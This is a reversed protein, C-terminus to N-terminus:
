GVPVAPITLNLINVGFVNQILMAIAWASFVIILGILAATIQNRANETGAKDGGGIMWRIGGIVLMFFFIVGAVVLAMTILWQVISSVTIGGLNGINEAPTLEIIDAYVTPILGFM